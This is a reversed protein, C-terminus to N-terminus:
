TGTYAPKRKELFANIGERYDDSDYVHRRLGQIREFMRPTLSHASALIRMQEKMVSISLPSNQAIQEAMAMVFRDIQKAEVLHNVIGLQAAREASIPQATFLLEKLMPLPVTWMFTLLGTANYPVGLKAPTAAFTSEPTAVIIDSVMAVECAGGWVGGEVLAIVPAPHEEIERVLQRLPDAWGLPDRKGKPLEGIDHGASWVEVGRKARLVVVRIGKKKFRALAKVIGEILGESLANLKKPHDMTIIGVPGRIRTRVFAM